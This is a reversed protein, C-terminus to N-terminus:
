ESSDGRVPPVDAPQLSPDLIEVDGQTRLNELWNDFLENVQQELLIEQIRSTVQTLPPVSEGVPYQPLLTDHYYAEVQQESIQIGQRFRQEIFRLIEMRNRVYIRVRAQTLNHAALFAKWGEDTDCHARVCVPLQKRIDGLRANVEAPTPQIAPLDEQRIQQQILARSILEDLAAQRTIEAQGGPVPDLVSLQIDDDVDSSLIPQRNVVAVVSDLPVATATQACTIALPCSAISLALLTGPWASPVIRSASKSRITTQEAM